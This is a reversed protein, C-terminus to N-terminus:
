DISPLTRMKELSQVWTEKNLLIKERVILSEKKLADTDEWKSVLLKLFRFTYYLDAARSIGM